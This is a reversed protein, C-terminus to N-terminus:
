PQVGLSDDIRDLEAEFRASDLRQRAEILGIIAEPAGVGLLREAQAV